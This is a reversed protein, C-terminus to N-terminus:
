KSAGIKSAERAKAYLAEAEKRVPSGPRFASVEGMARRWDKASLAETLGALPAPSGPAGSSALPDPAPEQKMSAPDHGPELTRDEPIAALREMAAELAPIDEPTLAPTAKGLKKLAEAWTAKAKEGYAETARKWAEDVHVPLPASKQPQPQVTSSTGGAADTDEEPAIGLMGSVSYRKAYTSVGAIKQPSVDEAEFTLTPSKIWEGSEGHVLLTFASVNPGDNEIPQLLALGAKSLSPIVAALVDSLDAYDFSYRGGAKMPVTATKTKKVPEFGAQATALAQFVRAFTESTELNGIKM